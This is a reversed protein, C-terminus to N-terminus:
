PTYIKPNLIAGADGFILQGIVAAIVFSGAIFLLGVMSQWIKAWAKEIAKPDGGASIFGYGAFIINLLAWIGGLVVLLKLITSLLSIIGGAGPAIEKVGPPPAVNGFPNQGSPGTPSSTYCFYKNANQDPQCPAGCARQCAAPDDYLQASGQASIDAALSSQFVALIFVFLFVPNFIKGFINM